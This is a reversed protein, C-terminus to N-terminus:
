PSAIPIKIEFENIGDSAYINYLGATITEPVQWPLYLDGEESTKSMVFESVGNENSIIIEVNHFGHWGYGDFILYLKGDIVDPQIDIGTGSTKPFETQYELLPKFQSTVKQKVASFINNLETSHVAWGLSVLREVNEAKVCAPHWNSSKIVFELGPKCTIQDLPIGLKYQGLPTDKNKPTQYPEREIEDCLKDGCVKDSNIEYAKKIEIFGEASNIMGFSILFLLPIIFVLKMDSVFKM